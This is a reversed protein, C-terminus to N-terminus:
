LIYLRETWSIRLTTRDATMEFVTIENMDAKQKTIYTIFDRIDTQKARNSFETRQFSSRALAM